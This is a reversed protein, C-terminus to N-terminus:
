AGDVAVLENLKPLPVNNVQSPDCTVATPVPMPAVLMPFLEVM